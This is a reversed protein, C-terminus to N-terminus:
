PVPRLQGENDRTTGTPSKKNSLEWIFEGERRIRRDKELHELARDFAKKRTGEWTKLAKPDSDADPQEGSRLGLHYTMTRLLPMLVAQGNKPGGPVSQPVLVTQGEDRMRHLAQIVKQGDLSPRTGRDSASARLKPGGTGVTEGTSAVLTTIDEGDEDVGLTVRDVDFRIPMNSPGNKVKEVVGQGTLYYDDDTGEMPSHLLVVGDANALQGSWGRVGKDADRGVHAVVLVLVDLRKALDQLQTMVPSMDRATNEDAGPISQSLTDVVVLGLRIGDLKMDQAQAVLLGELDTVDEVDNLKPAHPILRFAGGLPGTRARLGKMRMKVGAADEAAIYIVGARQTKRGLVPEGQCVAASASLAFFTKLSQSAGALFCVGTAPWIGKVLWQTTAPEVTDFNEVTFRSPPMAPRRALPSPFETVKGVKAAKEEFTERTM